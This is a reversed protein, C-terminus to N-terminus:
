GPLGLARVILGLLEAPREATLDPQEDPAEVYGWACWITTAGYARGLQIDGSTDGLMFARGKSRDFGCRTAAEQLMLPSPKAEACSDGGVVASFLTSV